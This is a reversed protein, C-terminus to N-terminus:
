YLNKFYKYSLALNLDHVVLIVNFVIFKDHLSRRCNSFEDLFFEFSLAVVYLEDSRLVVAGISYHCGASATEYPLISFTIRRCGNLSIGSVLASIIATCFEYVLDFLIAAVYPSLYEICIIVNVNLRM